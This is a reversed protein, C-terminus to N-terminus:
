SLFWVGIPPTENQTTVVLVVLVTKTFYDVCTLFECVEKWFLTVAGSTVLRVDIDM